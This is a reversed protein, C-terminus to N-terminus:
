RTRLPIIFCVPSMGITISHLLHSILSTNEERVAYTFVCLFVCEPDKWVVNSLCDRQLGMFQLGGHEETRPVEWALINFHAEMEKELSRGSGPISGTDGANGPLNKVVLDDSFIM